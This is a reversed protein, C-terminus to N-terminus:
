LAEIGLVSNITEGRHGLSEEDGAGGAKDTGFDADIEGAFEAVGDVADVVVLAGDEEAGGAVGAPVLGTEGGLERAEDVVLEVDAVAGADEGEDFGDRGGDDDVGGRLRGVVAGGGNGEVVEVGVGDAGEIEEFGGALGGGFGREDVHRRVFDVAVGGVADGEGFQGRAPVVGVGGVGVADGLGERDVLRFVGEKAGAFDGGIHHDLFVAAVKIEGGAGEAATAEGAGIVRADLEVAEEAVEHFAVELAAFVADEAVLSFLDAVVDVREVDGAEHGGEDGGRAGALDVIEAAAFGVAGGDEFCELDRFFKGALRLDVGVDVLVAGAVVDAVVAIEAFHAGM